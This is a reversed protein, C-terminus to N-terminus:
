LKSPMQTQVNWQSEIGIAIYTKIMDTLTDVCTEPYEFQVSTSPNYVPIGTNTTYGYVPTEPTRIYTFSIRRIFPYIYYLNNRNVLIPDNEEPNDIPSTISSRMKADFEHQSVFEVTRYDSEVSCGNNLLSLYSSTAEYWMDDPIDAYGGKKVDSALVPTFELAQYQPSGLTKIFPQLDKSVEKSNEFNDVLQNMFRQNVVKIALNFNDPTIYGGRLDKGSRFLVDKYIEDLNTTM